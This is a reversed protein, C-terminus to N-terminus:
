SCSWKGEREKENKTKKTEKQRRNRPLVFHFVGKKKKKIEGKTFYFLSSNWDVLQGRHCGCHRHLLHLLGVRACGCGCCLVCCCCSFPSSRSGEGAGCIWGCGWGCVCVCGCGSEGNMALNKKTTTAMAMPAITHNNSSASVDMQQNQHAKKNDPVRATFAASIRTSIGNPNATKIRSNSLVM